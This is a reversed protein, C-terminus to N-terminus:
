DNLHYFEKVSNYDSYNLNPNRGATGKIVVARYNVSFPTTVPNITADTADEISVILYIGGTTSTSNGTYFFNYAIGDTTYPYAYYFKKGSSATYVEYLLVIDKTTDVGSISSYVDYNGPLTSADGPSNDFSLSFNYYKASPGAAGTRSCSAFFLSDAIALTGFVIFMSTQKM